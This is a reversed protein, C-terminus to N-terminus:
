FKLKNKLEEEIEINDMEKASTKLERLTPITSLLKTVGTKTVDRNSTIDLIELETFEAITEANDILEDDSLHNKSLILTKIINISESFMEAIKDFILDGRNSIRSLILTELAPQDTLLFKLSSIGVAGIGLNDSLNLSRLNGFKLDFCELTRHTLRNRAIKLEELRPLGDLVQYLPRCNLNSIKSVLIQNVTEGIPIIFVNSTITFIVFQRGRVQALEAGCDGM